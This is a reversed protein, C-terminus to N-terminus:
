ASTTAAIETGLTLYCVLHGGAVGYRLRSVVQQTRIVSASKAVNLVNLRVPAM